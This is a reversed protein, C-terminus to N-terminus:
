YRGVRGGGVFGKANQADHIVTREDFPLLEAAGATLVLRLDGAM